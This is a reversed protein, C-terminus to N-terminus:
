GKKRVPEELKWDEITILKCGLNRKQHRPNATILACQNNAAIVAYCADYVTIKHQRALAASKQLITQDVTITKLGVTFLDSVAIQLKEPSIGDKHVLANSVEYFLLDPVLAEIEEGSIRELIDVAQPVGKEGLASYWKVVISADLVLSLRAM